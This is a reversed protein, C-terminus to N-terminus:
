PLLEPEQELTVGFMVQVKDTIKQKFTLLDATNQAHENVLVLASGKWTSMGTQQDHVAKFGAQELMWGASLKVKGDGRPWAKIDPYKTKLQQYKTQDVIPNTFFSGNNAVVSPDPLKIKRIETVAQRVTQPTFESVGNEKFYTELSEYFPPAPNQKKLKLTINLIVFRGRDKTKFRSTRYAFDCGAALMTEFADASTDYVAVETLVDAIEAGYAGINQVPAAGVCGPIRSLFELGSLNKDVSWKVAKDWVEGAGIRVTLIREDEALVEIRKIKNVIVLGPFGEDRWVINSGQGIVIFPAAKQKAWSVLDKVTQESDTEALWYARGGLRMTSYLRLDVDELINIM